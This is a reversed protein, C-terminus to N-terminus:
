NTVNVTLRAEHVIPEHAPVQALARVTLGVCPGPPASPSAKFVLKAEDKGAPIVAEGATLGRVADPIVVQVKFEGQYASLRKVKVMVEATGGVRVAPEAPSLRVEAVQRPLVTLTLPASPVSVEVNAKSKSGVDQVPPIPAKAQFVVTYTGPVLEKKMELDLVVTAEDAAFTLSLPKGSISLGPPLSLARIKVPAKVDPRRRTVTVPVRLKEGQVLVIREKGISMQFPASDRVALGIGPDLRTGPLSGKLGPVLAWVPRQVAQGEVTARGEIKIEGTWTPADDAIRFVLPCQKVGPGIMQPTCTVGPPLGLATVLIEGNWGGLRSVQIPITDNAGKRVVGVGTQNSVFLHFDPRERRIVVRYLNRFAHRPDAFHTGVLVLYRGDAPAV